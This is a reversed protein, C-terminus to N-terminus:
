RLQENAQMLEESSLLLSRTRLDLDREYQAYSEAVGSLLPVLGKALGTLRADAQGARVLAAVAAELEDPTAIGVHRRLQRALQRAALPSANTKSPADRDM